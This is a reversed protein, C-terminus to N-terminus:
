MQLENTSFALSWCEISDAKPPSLCFGVVKLRMYFTAFMNVRLIEENSLLLFILNNNNYITEDQTM